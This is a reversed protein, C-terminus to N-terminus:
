GAADSLLSRVREDAHGLQALVRYCASWVRRQRLVADRLDATAGNGAGKAAARQALKGQLEEASKRLATVQAATVQRKALGELVDKRAEIAAADRHIEVRLADQSQSKVAVKKKKEGDATKEVVTRIVVPTEDALIKDVVALTDASAGDQEFDFRVAQLVGMIASYSRQLAVFQKQVGLTAGVGGAQVAGRAHSLAEAELGADRIGELDSALGGCHQYAALLDATNLILNAARTRAAVTDNYAARTM